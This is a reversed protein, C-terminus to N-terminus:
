ELYSQVFSAAEVLVSVAEAQISLRLCGGSALIKVIVLFGDVGALFGRV